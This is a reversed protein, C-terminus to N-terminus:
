IGNKAKPYAETYISAWEDYLNAVNNYQKIISPSALMTVEATLKSFQSNLDNSAQHTKTVKILEEMMEHVKTYLAELKEKKKSTKGNLQISKFEQAILGGLLSIFLIAPEWDPSKILWAEALLLSIINAIKLIM